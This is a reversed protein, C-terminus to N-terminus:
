RKKPVLSLAFAVGLGAGLLVGLLVLWPAIPDYGAAAVGGLFGGIFLGYLLAVFHQRTPDKPSYVRILALAARVLRTANKM